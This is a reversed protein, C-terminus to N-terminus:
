DTDQFRVLVGKKRTGYRFVTVGKCGREYAYRYANEIDDKKASRPMNITKSVANDTYKQFAAQMEIHDRYPIELATRYLRRLLPPVEKIGRLTGTKEIRRRMDETSFGLAAATKFFSDNIEDLETDMVMRKHALSYIPEIGSSCGAIMSLTGTPAITTTTANRVAPMGHTDYISGQFNPFAGRARALLASCERARASFFKMVKEALRCSRRSNYPMGLAILLDAWGMIGLGIKRNGKHMLEIAPLPYKNADIADDLFRVATM